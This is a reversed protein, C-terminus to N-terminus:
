LKKLWVYKNKCTKVFLSEYNRLKIMLMLLKKVINKDMDNIISQKLVNCVRVRFICTLISTDTLVSQSYKNLTITEFINVFDM